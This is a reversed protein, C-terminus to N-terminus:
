DTTQDAMPSAPFSLTFRTGEGLVSEVRIDGNMMRALDLAINLGLGTGSQSSRRDSTDLRTFRKFLQPLFEPPIGPGQDSVSIEIQDDIAALKIRVSQGSESFKIANSLLNDMIQLFRQADVMATTQHDDAPLAVDLRIQHQEAFSLNNDVSEKVLEALGQHSTNLTMRASDMRAIDLVDDVLKKLRETNRLAMPLLRQKTTTDGTGSELLKLAGSISTLPTRLEHSITHIFELKERHTQELVQRARQRVRLQQFALLGLMLGAAVLLSRLWWIAQTNYRDSITLQWRTQGPLDLILSQELRPVAAKSGAFVAEGDAHLRSLQFHVGQQEALREVSALIAPVNTVTSILGWYNGDIFVPRRYILGEGGQVLDVPGILTDKGTEMMFAVAPWQDPLTQFDLGVVAENGQLPFIAAFRNDPAIGINRLTRTHEFLLAMWAEIDDWDPQGGRSQIFSEMGITVYVGESLEAELLARADSAQSLLRQEADSRLSYALPQLLLEIAVILLALGGIALLRSHKLRM